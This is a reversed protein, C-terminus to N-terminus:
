PLALAFILLSPVKAGCHSPWAIERLLNWEVQRPDQTASERARRQAKEGGLTM